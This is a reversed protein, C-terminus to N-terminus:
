MRRIRGMEAEQNKEFVIELAKACNSDLEDIIEAFAKVLEIDLAKNSTEPTTWARVALKIAFASPM